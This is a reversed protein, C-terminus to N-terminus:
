RILGPRIEVLAIGEGLFLREVVCYVIRSRADCPYSQDNVRIARLLFYTGYIWTLVKRHM